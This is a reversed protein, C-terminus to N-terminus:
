KNETTETDEGDSSQNANATIMEITHLHIIAGTEPNTEATIRYTERRAVYGKTELDLVRHHFAEAGWERILLPEGMTKV